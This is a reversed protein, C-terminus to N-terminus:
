SVRHLQPQEEDSMLSILHNMQPGVNKLLTRCLLFIENFVTKKLCGASLRHDLM